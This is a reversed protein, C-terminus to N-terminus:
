NLTLKNEKNGMLRFKEKRALNVAIETPEIERSKWLNHKLSSFGKRYLCRPQLKLEM